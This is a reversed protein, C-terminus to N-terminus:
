LVLYATLSKTAIAEKKRDSSSRFQSTRQLSGSREIVSARDPSAADEFFILENDLHRM